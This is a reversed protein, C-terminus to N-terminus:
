GLVSKGNRDFLHLQGVAPVIDVATGKGLDPM